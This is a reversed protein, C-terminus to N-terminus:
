VEVTEEASIGEYEYGDRDILFRWGAREDESELISKAEDEIEKVGQFYNWELRKKIIDLIAAKRDEVTDAAYILDQDDGRWIILRM